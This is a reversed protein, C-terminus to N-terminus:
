NIILAFATTLYKPTTKSNLESNMNIAVTIEKAFLSSEKNGRIILEDREIKIPKIKVKEM